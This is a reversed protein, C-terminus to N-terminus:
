GLIAAQVAAGYAVGEDPNVSKNLEKGNFFGQLMKQLMPIRTSGGILVIDDIQAKGIKADRLSKKIHEITCGFLDANLGEFTSRNIPTNIDMGDFLSDIKISAETLDSLMCKARECAARLRRLARVNTTLDKNYKCKFFEVFHKMLRNDFDEGGVHITRATAKFKCTGDEITLISIVLTRVGLDFILVNKEGRGQL